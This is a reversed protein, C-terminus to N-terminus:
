FWGPGLGGDRLSSYIVKGRKPPNEYDEESLLVPNGSCDCAQFYLSSFGKVMRFIPQEKYTTLSVWGLYHGNHAKLIRDEEAKTLYEELWEMKGDGCAEGAISLAEPLPYGLEEEPIAEKQVEAKLAEAEPIEDQFVCSLLFSGFVLIYSLQKMKNIQKTIQAVSVQGFWSM